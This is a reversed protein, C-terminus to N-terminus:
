SSSPLQSRSPSSCRLRSTAPQVRVEPLNRSIALQVECSALVSLDRGLEALLETLSPSEEDPKEPEGESLSAAKDVTETM